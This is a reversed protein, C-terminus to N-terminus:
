TGNQQKTRTVTPSSCLVVSRTESVNRRRKSLSPPPPLLILAIPLPKLCELIMQSHSLFRCWFPVRTLPFMSWFRPFEEQKIKLWVWKAVCCTCMFGDLENWQCDVHRQTLTHTSLVITNSNSCLAFSPYRDRGNHSAGVFIHMPFYMYIYVYIIYVYIYIHIYVCMYIYINHLRYFWPSESVLVGIRFNM